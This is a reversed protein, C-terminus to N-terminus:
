DEWNIEVDDEVAFLDGSDTQYLNYQTDGTGSLGVVKANDLVDAWSDWYLENGPGAMCSLISTNLEVQSVKFYKAFTQPVYVGRSGDVLLKVNGNATAQEFTKM